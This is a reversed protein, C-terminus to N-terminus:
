RRSPGHTCSTCDVQEAWQLGGEPSKALSNRSTNYKKKTQELATIIPTITIGQSTINSWALPPSNPIYLEISEDALSSFSILLTPLLLLIHLM